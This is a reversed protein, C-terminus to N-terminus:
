GRVPTQVAKQHAAAPRPHSSGQYATAITTGVISAIGRPNPGLDRDEDRILGSRAACILTDRQQHCVDSGVRLAQRTIEGRGGIGARGATVASM